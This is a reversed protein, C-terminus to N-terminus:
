NGIYRRAGEGAAKRDDHIGDRDTVDKSVIIIGSDNHKGSMHIFSHEYLRNSKNAGFGALKVVQTKHEDLCKNFYDIWTARSEPCVFSLGNEEMVERESFGEECHNIFQLKRNRDFIAVIDSTNKVLSLFKMENEEAAGKMTFLRLAMKISTILATEGSNKVIYGYSTVTETKNVITRDTHSSLFVLPKDIKSLIIEAAKIGDIGDGLNIDMLIVDIEPSEEVVKIADEGTHAIIVRFGNKELIKKGALAMMTEDEVLLITKDTIDTM